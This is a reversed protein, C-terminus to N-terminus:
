YTEEDLFICEYVIVVFRYSMNFHTIQQHMKESERVCEIESEGNLSYERLKTKNENFM